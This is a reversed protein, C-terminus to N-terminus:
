CGKLFPLLCILTQNPVRPPTPAHFDKIQNKVLSEIWTCELFFFIECSPIWGSCREPTHGASRLVRLAQMCECYLHPRAALAYVLTGMSLQEAHLCSSFSTELQEGFQFSLPPSYQLRQRPRPVNIRYLTSVFSVDWESSGAGHLCAPVVPAPGNFILVDKYDVAFNLLKLLLAASTRCLADTLTESYM